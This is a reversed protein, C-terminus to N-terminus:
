QQQRSFKTVRHLEPKLLLCGLRVSAFALVHRRLQVRQYRIKRAARCQAAPLTLAFMFKGLLASTQILCHM